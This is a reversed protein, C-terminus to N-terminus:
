DEISPIISIMQFDIVGALDNISIYGMELADQLSHEEFGSKVLYSESQECSFAYNYDEDTYFIDIMTDCTDQPQVYLVWENLRTIKEYGRLQMQFVSLLAIILVIILTAAIRLKGM